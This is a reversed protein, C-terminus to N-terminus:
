SGDRKLLLGSRKEWRIWRSSRTHGEDKLRRPANLMADGEDLKRITLDGAIKEQKGNISLKMCFEREYRTIKWLCEVAITLVMVVTLLKYVAKAIM